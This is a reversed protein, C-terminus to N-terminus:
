QQNNFEEETREECILDGDEACLEKASKDKFIITELDRKIGVNYGADKHLNVIAEMETRGKYIGFIYGLTKNHIRWYKM